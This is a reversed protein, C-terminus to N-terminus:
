DFATCTAFHIVGLSRALAQSPLNDVQHSFFAVRGADIERAALACVAQRAYGRRRFEPDTEVAVEACRENRRESWASCVPSGGVSIRVVRGEWAAQPYESPLPRHGFYYSEFIGYEPNPGLCDLIRCALEPQQFPNVEALAVMDEAPLDFRYFCRLGDSYRYVIFRAQETSGPFPILRDGSLVQYELNIQLEILDVADM